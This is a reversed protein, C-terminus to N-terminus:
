EDGGAREPRSSELYYSVWYLNESSSIAVDIPKAGGFDPNQEFLWKVQAESDAFREALRKYISIVPVFYDLDTPVAHGGPGHPVGRELLSQCFKQVSVRGLAAMQEDKLGWDAQIKLLLEFFSLELNM